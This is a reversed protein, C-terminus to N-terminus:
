NATVESAKGDRTISLKVADGAKKARLAVRFADANALEMGDFRTLRDGPKLGAKEAPSGPQLEEVVLQGDATGVHVGLYGPLAATAAPTAPPEVKTKIATDVTRYDDDAALASLPTVALVILGPWLHRM